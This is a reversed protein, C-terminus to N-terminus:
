FNGIGLPGGLALYILIKPYFCDNANEFVERWHNQSLRLAPIGTTLFSELM